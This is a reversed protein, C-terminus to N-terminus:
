WGPFGAVTRRFVLPMRTGVTAVLTESVAHGRSRVPGSSSPPDDIHKSLLTMWARVGDIAGRATAGGDLSGARRSELLEIIRRCRLTETTLEANPVSALRDEPWRSYFAASQNLLVVLEPTSRSTLRWVVRAAAGGAALVALLSTLTLVWGGIGGIGSPAVQGGADFRAMVASFIQGVPVPSQM